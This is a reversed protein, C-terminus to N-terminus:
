PEQLERRISTLIEDYRWAAPADPEQHHDPELTLDGTWSSGTTSPIPCAADMMMMLAAGEIPEADRDDVVGPRTDPWPRLKM